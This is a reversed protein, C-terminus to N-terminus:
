KPGPVWPIVETDVLNEMTGKRQAISETEFLESNISTLILLRGDGM